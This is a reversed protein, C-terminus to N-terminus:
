EGLLSQLDNLDPEEFYEVVVDVAMHRNTGCSARVGVYAPDKYAAKVIDLVQAAGSELTFTQGVMKQLDWHLQILEALHENPHVEIEYHTVGVQEGLPCNHQIDEHLKIQNINFTNQLYKEQEQESLSNIKGPM